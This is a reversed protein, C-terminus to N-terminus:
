IFIENIEKKQIAKRKVTKKKNKWKKGDNKNEYISKKKGKKM